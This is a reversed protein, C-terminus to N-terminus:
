DSWISKPKGYCYIQTENYIVCRKIELNYCYIEGNKSTLCEIIIDEVWTANTINGSHYTTWLEEKVYNTETLESYDRLYQEKQSTDSDLTEMDEKTPLLAGDIFRSNISYCTENCIDLIENAELCNHEPYTDACIEYDITQCEQCAFLYSYGISCILMGMIFTAIMLLV